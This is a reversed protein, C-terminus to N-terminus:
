LVTQAIDRHSNLYKQTRLAAVEALRANRKEDDEQKMEELVKELDEDSEDDGNRMKRHDPKATEEEITEFELLLLVM